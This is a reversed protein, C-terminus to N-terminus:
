SLLAAGEWGINNDELNMLLIFRWQAMVVFKPIIVEMGANRYRYIVLKTIFRQRAALGEM